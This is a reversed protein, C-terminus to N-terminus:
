KFFNIEEELTRANVDAFQASYNLKKASKAVPSILHISMDPTTVEKIGGYKNVLDLLIGPSMLTDIEKCTKITSNKTVILTSCLADIEETTVKTKTVKVYKHENVYYGLGGARYIIVHGNRSYKQLKSANVPFDFSMSDDSGIIEIYKDDAWVHYIMHLKVPLLGGLVSKYEVKYKAYISQANITNKSCFIYLILIACKKM